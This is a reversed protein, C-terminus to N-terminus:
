NYYTKALIDKKDTSNIIGTYMKAADVKQDQKYVATAQNFKAIANNPDKELAKGYEMAAKNYEEKKYLDNGNRINADGAQCFAAFPCLIVILPGFSRM